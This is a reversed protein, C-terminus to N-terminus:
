QLIRQINGVVFVGCDYSNRQKLINRLWTIKIDNKSEIKTMNMM